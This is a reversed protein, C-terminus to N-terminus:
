PKPFGPYEDYDFSKCNKIINQIGRLSRSVRFAEVDKMFYVNVRGPHESGSQLQPNNTFIKSIGLDKNYGEAAWEDACYFNKFYLCHGYSNVAAYGYDGDNDSMGAAQEFLDKRLSELLRVGENHTKIRMILKDLDENRKM